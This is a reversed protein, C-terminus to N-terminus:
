HMILTTLPQVQIRELKALSAAEEAKKAASKAKAEQRELALQDQKDKSLEPMAEMAHLGGSSRPHALESSCSCRYVSM